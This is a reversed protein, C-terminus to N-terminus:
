ARIVQSPMLRSARWAPPLGGLLGMLATALVAAVAISPEPQLRFVVESWTETNLMSFRVSGLTMALLAGALGGVISLAVTEFVIAALVSRQTFGLARLVAIERRRSDVSAYMTMTAALMAGLSFFFATMLGVTSLLQATGESQEAYYADEGVVRVGLAPNAAVAVRLADLAGHSGSTVRVSSVVGERGFASQATHLDTWVESELASANASFVGVIRVPRNARLPFSRDLELGGFRGRIGAGVIAEDTGPRPARGELIRVGPHLRFSGESIGRIQVNSQGDAGEKDLLVVGVLEPAAEAPAPGGASAAAALIAPVNAEDIASTLESESGDRLVFAIDPSGARAMTAVVGNSITLSAGILFAVLGLVGATTCSTTRRAFLSRLCYPIPIM